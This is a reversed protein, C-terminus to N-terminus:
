VSSRTSRLCQSSRHVAARARLCLFKVRLRRELLKHSHSLAAFVVHRFPEFSGVWVCHTKRM